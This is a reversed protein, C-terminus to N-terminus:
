VLQIERREYVDDTKKFFEPAIGVQRELDRLLIRAPAKNERILETYIHQWKGDQVEFKYYPPSRTVHPNDTLQSSIGNPYFSIPLMRSNSLTISQMSRPELLVKGWHTDQYYEILM